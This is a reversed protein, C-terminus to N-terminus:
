AAPPEAHEREPRQECDGDIPVGSIREATRADGQEGIKFHEMILLNQGEIRNLQAQISLAIQGIRGITDTVDPPLSALAKEIMTKAMMELANM